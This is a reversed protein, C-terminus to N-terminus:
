KMFRSREIEHLEAIMLECNEPKNSLGQLRKSIEVASLWQTEPGLYKRIRNRLKIERIKLRNTQSFSRRIQFAIIVGALVFIAILSYLYFESTPEPSEQILAKNVWPPAPAPPNHIIHPIM